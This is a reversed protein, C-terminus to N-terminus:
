KLGFFSKGGAEEISQYFERKLEEALCNENTCKSIYIWKKNLEEDSVETKTANSYNYLSIQKSIKAIEVFESRGCLFKNSVESGACSPTSIKYSSKSWELMKNYDNTKIDWTELPLTKSSELAKDCSLILLCSSAIILLKLYSHM